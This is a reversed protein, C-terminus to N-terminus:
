FLQTIARSMRCINPGNEEYEQKTHCVSTFQPLSALMSGGYFVAFRQADHSVVNVDIAKGRLPEGTATQRQDVISKLDKQIRRNLDKFLTSGGSLVINQFFHYEFLLVNYLARRTDIPCSQISSDVLDPLPM